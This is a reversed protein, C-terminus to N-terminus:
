FDRRFDLELGEEKYVDQWAMQSARCRAKNKKKAQDFSKYKTLHVANVKMEIGLARFHLRKLIEFASAQLETNSGDIWYGGCVALRGNINRPAFALIFHSQVKDIPIDIIRFDAAFPVTTQASAPAIMGFFSIAAAFIHVKTKRFAM